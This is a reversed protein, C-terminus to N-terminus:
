ADGGGNSGGRDGFGAPNEKFEHSEIVRDISQVNGLFDPTLVEVPFTKHDAM